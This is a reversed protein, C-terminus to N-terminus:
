IIEKFWKIDNIFFKDRKKKLINENLLSDFIRRFIHRLYRKVKPHNDFGLYFQGSKGKKEILNKVFLNLETNNINWASFFIRVCNKMAEERVKAYIKYDGGCFINKTTLANLLLRMALKNSSLFEKTKVIPQIKIGNSHKEFGNGCISKEMFDPTALLKNEYPVEEDFELKYRKHLDKVFSITNDMQKQTYRLCIGVMDVDSNKNNLGFAWSGYVIVFLLEKGFEKKYFEGIEKKISDIKRAM